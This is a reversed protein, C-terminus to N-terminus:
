ELTLLYNVLDDLEEDTLDAAFPPMQAGPKVAPPNRIWAKLNEETTEFMGGAFTERSALHTLNPAIRTDVNAPHGDLTHCAQCSLDEWIQAGRAASADEPPYGAPQGQADLWAQYDEPTHAVVTFRMNAHSLGCFEACQGPYRGPEDAEFKLENVHGPIMDVKGALRPVWFSHIVGDAVPGVKPGVTPEVDPVIASLSELRVHVMRDVPVHLETATVVEQGDEGLYQFEFWYQKAVARIDMAEEPIEAIEFITQVTPVAIVALILAPIITWLVELRTNGHLQKPPLAEDGRARFKWVLFILGGQVLIFVGVAIPFVLDWLADQQRAVPGAPDFVSQPAVGGPDVSGACAAAVVAFVAALLAWGILGSRRRGARM